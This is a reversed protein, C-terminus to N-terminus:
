FNMADCRRRDSRETLEVGHDHRSV